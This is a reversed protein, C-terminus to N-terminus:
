WPSMPDLKSSRIVTLFFVGVELSTALVGNLHWQVHGPLFHYSDSGFCLRVWMSPKGVRKGCQVRGDIMGTRIKSLRKFTRLIYM